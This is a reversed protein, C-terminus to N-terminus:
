TEARRLEGAFRWFLGTEGTKNDRGDIQVLTMARSAKVVQTVTGTYRDTYPGGCGTVADGPRVKAWSAM